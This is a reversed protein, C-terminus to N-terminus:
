KELWDIIDQAEAAQSEQEIEANEMGITVGYLFWKDDESMPKWTSLEDDFDAKVKALAWAFGFDIPEGYYDHGWLDFFNMVFAYLWKLHKM